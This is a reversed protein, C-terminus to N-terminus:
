PTSNDEGGDGGALACGFFVIYAEEEVILARAGGVM